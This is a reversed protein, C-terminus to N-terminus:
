ETAIPKSYKYEDKKDVKRILVEPHGAISRRIQRKPVGSRRSVSNEGSCPMWEDPHDRLAKIIRLEYGKQTSASMDPKKQTKTKSPVNIAGWEESCSNCRWAPSDDDRM